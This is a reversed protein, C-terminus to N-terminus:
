CGLAAADLSERSAKIAGAKTAYTAVNGDAVGALTRAFVQSCGTLRRARDTMSAIWQGNHHQAIIWRGSPLQHVHEAIWAERAAKEREPATRARELQALARDAVADVDADGTDALRAGECLAEFDAFTAKTGDAYTAVIEGGVARLDTPVPSGDTTDLAIRISATLTEVNTTTM